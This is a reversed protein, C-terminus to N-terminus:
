VYYGYDCVSFKVKTAFISFIIFITCIFVNLVVVARLGHPCDLHGLSPRSRSGFQIELVAQSASQLIFM